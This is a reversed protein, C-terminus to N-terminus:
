LSTQHAFQGHLSISFITMFALLPVTFFFYMTPEQEPTRGPPHQEKSPTFALRTGFTCSKAFRIYNKANAHLQCTKGSIIVQSDACLRCNKRPGYGPTPFCKGEFSM